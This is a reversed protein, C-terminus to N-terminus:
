EDDPTGEDPSGDDPEAGGEGGPAEVGGEDEPTEDEDEDPVAEIGALVRLRGDAETARARAEFYEETAEGAYREYADAIPEAPTAPLATAKEALTREADNYRASLTNAEQPRDGLYAADAQKSIEIAALKEECYELYAAFDAEPFGTAAESFLERAREVKQEAEGTLESSRTVSERTLKNYEEVAQVTLTGAEVVLSWADLAPELAAAAKVNFELITEATELMELRADAAEQLADAYDLETEPLTPRAREILTIASALDERASPLRPEVQEARAGLESDIEARVVADVELVVEDAREVLVTAEDLRAVAEAQEKRGENQYWLMLGLIGLAVVALAILATRPGRRPPEPPEQPQAAAPPASVGGGGPGDLDPQAPTAASDQREQDTMTEDGKKGNPVAYMPRAVSSAGDGDLDPGSM